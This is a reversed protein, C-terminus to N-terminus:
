PPPPDDETGSAPQTVPDGPGSVGPADEALPAANETEPETFVPPSGPTMITPAQLVADEIAAPSYELTSPEIYFPPTYQELVNTGVAIEVEEAPVVTLGLPGINECVTSPLTGEGAALFLIWVAGRNTGGDDDQPAAVALDLVGDGNLDGIGAIGRGFRDFFDLAGGFGGATESILFESAVTGDTELLLIWVAGEQPGGGDTDIAGAALDQIGDGNLDGLNALGLGLNDGGALSGGFGGAVESIEQQSAVTGNANLFLVFLGGSSGPGIGPAGVALDENGNADLDGLGALAEGFRNNDALAGTFGGTSDSIRQEAKVTGNSNLFLIWVAGRNTGDDDDRPAGVALDPVGDNDLDGIGAVAYGFADDDDLSGGFLGATNSIKQESKVSGNSNLFLIWVAGRTMGGDDDFPAGVALDPVNDGDVDGLNAVSTGFGDFADLSGAFGGSTQSIKALSPATGDTDLFLIWVAGADPDGDDDGDAGVALDVIGDGDLDGLSAIDRGFFDNDGLVGAFDGETDSIKQESLVTGTGGGAGPLADPACDPAMSTWVSGILQSAPAAGTSRYLRGPGTPSQTAFSFGAPAGVGYAVRESAVTELLAGNLYGVPLQPQWFGPSGPAPVAPPALYVDGTCGAASYYVQNRTTFRDPRVGVIPLLGNDPDKCVLQPAECLDFTKARGFALGTDDFLVNEGSKVLLGNRLAALGVFTGIVVFTIVLILTLTLIFGRDQTTSSRSARRATSM